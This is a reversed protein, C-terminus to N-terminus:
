APHGGATTHPHEHALPRGYSYHPFRWLGDPDPAPFRLWALGPHRQALAETTHLHAATDFALASFLALLVWIQQDPEGTRLMRTALDTRDAFDLAAFPPWTPLLVRGKALAYATAETNLLGALVPMLPGLGLDPLNLLTIAGAQVAGPGPAAGAIAQDGPHRKEGPVMTDAFAELTAVTDLPGAPAATPLTLPLGGPAAAAAPLSVAGAQLAALAGALGAVLRRRTPGTSM